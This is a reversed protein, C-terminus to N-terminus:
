IAAVDARKWLFMHPSLNSPDSCLITCFSKMTATGSPPYHNTVAQSLHIYTTMILDLVKHKRTPFDVMQTLNNNVINLFYIHSSTAKYASLLGRLTQVTLIVM